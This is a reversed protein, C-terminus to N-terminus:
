SYLAQRSPIEYETKESDFTINVAKLFQYASDRKALFETQDLDDDESPEDAIVEFLGAVTM